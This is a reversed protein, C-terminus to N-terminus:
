EAEGITITDGTGGVHQFRLVPKAYERSFSPPTQLTVKGWLYAHCYDDGTKDIGHVRLWGFIERTENAFPTTASGATIEGTGFLLEHVLDPQANLTLDLYDAVVRREVNKQYGGGTKPCYHVDEETDTVFNVSEICGIQPWNTAPDTDPKVADTVTVADITDGERVFYVFAGILYRATLPRLTAM